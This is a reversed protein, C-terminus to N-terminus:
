PLTPSALRCVHGSIESVEKQSLGVWLPLRLVRRSVDETVPLESGLRGFKM